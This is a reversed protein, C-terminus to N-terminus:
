PDDEQSRMAKKLDQLFEEKNFMYAGSYDDYIYFEMLPTSICEIVQELMDDSGREYVSRADYSFWEGRYFCKDVGDIIRFDGDCPQKSM